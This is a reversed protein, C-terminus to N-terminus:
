KLGYVRVTNKYTVKAIQKLTIGRLKAIAQAVYYVYGTENQKGRYPKPTLYPADTEVLLRDLPVKKASEHVEIAKTFSVVGSYSFYINLDLFKNLWKVGGNFNHLVAGNKLNSNKLIDYCDAFADRTHINIPVNLKNAIEIQRAFVARQTARPSKDWYYDLGIEGLAVVKPLKLQEILKAEAEKNFDKAVDPCYGVMAYVNPFKASLELARKNFEPDQGACILKSVGLKQARRLYYEEKGRFPYDNLHTHNDILKVLM